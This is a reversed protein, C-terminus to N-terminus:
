NATNRNRFGFPPLGFKQKFVRTFYAQQAFGCLTAIESMPKNTHCLFAAAMELRRERIYQGITIGTESKFVSNIYNPHMGIYEAIRLVNLDTKKLEAKIFHKIQRLIREHPPLDKISVPEFYKPLMLRIGCLWWEWLVINVNIGSLHFVSNNRGESMKRHFKSNMIRQNSNSYGIPINHTLECEPLNGYEMMHLMEKEKRIFLQAEDDSLTRILLPATDKDGFLSQLPFEAYNGREDRFRWIICTHEVGTTEDPAFRHPIMPNILVLSNKGADVPKSDRLMIKNRGQSILILHYAPHLHVFSSANQFFGHGISEVELFYNKGNIKLQFATDM